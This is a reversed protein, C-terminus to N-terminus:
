RVLDEFDNSGTSRASPWGVLARLMRASLPEFEWVGRYYARAVSRPVVRRERWVDPLSRMAHQLGALYAGAVGARTARWGLLALYRAAAPAAYRAPLHKLPFWLANPVLSRIRTASSRNTPSFRHHVVCEPAYRVSLGRARLRICLDMETGHLRLRPDFFHKDATTAARRVLAGCGWFCLPNRPWCDTVAHGAGDLIHCAIVAINAESEMLALARTLCGPAPIADDDLLFVLEQRALTVGV